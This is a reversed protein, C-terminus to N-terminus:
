LVFHMFREKSHKELAKFAQESNLYSGEIFKERLVKIAQHEQSTFNDENTEIYDEIECIINSARSILLKVEEETENNYNNQNNNPNYSDLVFSKEIIQKLHLQNKEETIKILEEYNTKIYQM